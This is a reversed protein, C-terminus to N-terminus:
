LNDQLTRAAGNSYKVHHDSPLADLIVSRASRTGTYLSVGKVEGRGLGIQMQMEVWSLVAIVKENHVGWTHGM